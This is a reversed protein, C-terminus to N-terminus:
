TTGYNLDTCYLQSLLRNTYTQLSSETLAQPHVGQGVMANFAHISKQCRENIRQKLQLKADQRIGLHIVQYQQEIFSNDYTIAAKIDRWSQSYVFTVSEKVNIEIHWTCCYFYM